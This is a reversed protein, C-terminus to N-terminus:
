ASLIAPSPQRQPSPLALPASRQQRGSPTMEFDDEYEYEDEEEDTEDMGAWLIAACAFAFLNIGFYTSGAPVNRTVQHFVTNWGLSAFFGVDGGEPRSMFLLTVNIRDDMLMVLGWGTVVLAPMLLLQHLISLTFGLRVKQLMLIGGVLGLLYTLQFLGVLITNRGAPMNFLILPDFGWLNFGASMIQLYAIIYCINLAM